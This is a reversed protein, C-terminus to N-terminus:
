REYFPKWGDAGSTALNCLLTDVTLVPSIRGSGM